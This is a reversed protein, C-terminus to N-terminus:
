DDDRVAATNLVLHIEAMISLAISEPLEGGIDLGAPGHILGDEIGLQEQLEERRAKPGLLGLYNLKRHALQELYTADHELNHSMVIAADISSLDVKHQLQEPRLQVIRASGPFRDARAYAARHDVLVCEWGLSDIQRAVPVADPGAGCVLIRPSPAIRVMLVAEELGGGPLSVHKCRQSSNWSEPQGELCAALREDGFFDGADNVLAMTGAPFEDGSERVLALVCASRRNLSEFLWPLFGFGDARDLRQLLLHVVGGCGLGLSWIAEEESSLDYTVRRPQGDHFVAAAHEVLDGELCGGSILGAFEANERILMMAGPKRYSSGETAIVTALVLARDDGHQDLFSALERLGLHM